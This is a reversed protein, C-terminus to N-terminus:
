ASHFFNVLRRQETAALYLNSSTLSFLCFGWIKVPLIKVLTMIYVCRCTVQPRLQQAPHLSENLSSLHGYNSCAGKCPGHGLKKMSISCLACHYMTGGMCGCIRSFASFDSEHSCTSFILEWCSLPTLVIVQFDHGQDRYQFLAGESSLIVGWFFHVFVAPSLCLLIHM